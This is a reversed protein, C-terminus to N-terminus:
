PKREPDIVTIGLDPEPSRLLANPEVTVMLEFTPYVYGQLLHGGCLAGTPGAVLIHGHVVPKGNYLAIDGLFSVVESMVTVPQVRYAKRDLNFVGIKARDVGGIATFHAASVNYKQAFETLAGLVEDGPALILAYSKEGSNESLLKVKMGPAKGPAPAAAPAIWETTAPAPQQAPLALPAALLAILLSQKFM